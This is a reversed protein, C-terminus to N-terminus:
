GQLQQTQAFVTETSGDRGRQSAQCAQRGDVEALVVQVPVDADDRACTQTSSTETTNHRTMDHQKTDDEGWRLYQVQLM